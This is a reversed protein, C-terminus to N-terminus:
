LSCVTLALHLTDRTDRLRTRFKEIKTEKFNAKLNDWRSNHFWEKLKLEFAKSVAQCDELPVKASSLCVRLKNPLSSGDRNELLSKLSKIVGQTANIDVKLDSILKPADKLSDIFDALSKTSNYALTAVAIIGATISLPDTM